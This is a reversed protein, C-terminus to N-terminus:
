RGIRRGLGEREDSADDYYYGDPLDRPTIQGSASPAPRRNVTRVFTIAGRGGNEDPAGIVVDLDSDGDIDLLSVAEGFRDGTDSRNPIGPTDQSLLRAGGRGPGRRDGYLVTVRGSDHLEGPAGVLLDAKGDRNVDGAVLAAGFEDDAEDSGPVGPSDQTLRLPNALGDRTGRHVWVRGRSEQTQTEYAAPQGLIVDDRGGGAVDGVAIETVGPATARVSSCALRYRDQYTCSWLGGPVGQANQATAAVGPEVAVLETREDGRVNGASLLVEQQFQVSYVELRREYTVNSRGGWLVSVQRSFEQMTLESPQQTTTLIDDYGDRDVDAVSLAGGLRRPAAATGTPQVLYRDAERPGGPGGPIIVLAGDSSDYSPDAVVLDGFGDGNVDGGATATAGSTYHDIYRPRAPDPGSRGGPIVVAVHPNIAAVIDDGRRGDLEWTATSRTDPAPSAAALGPMVALVVAILTMLSGTGGPTRQM